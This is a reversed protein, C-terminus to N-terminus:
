DYFLYLLQIVLVDYTYYISTSMNLKYGIQCPCVYQNNYRMNDRKRTYNHGCYFMKLSAM